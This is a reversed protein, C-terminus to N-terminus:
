MAYTPLQKGVNRAPRDTVYELTFCDLSFEPFQNMRKRCEVQGATGKVIPGVSHGSVETVLYWGVSRLMGSSRLDWICPLPLRFGRLHIACRTNDIKDVVYLFKDLM